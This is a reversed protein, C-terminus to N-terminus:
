KSHKENLANIRIKLAPNHSLPPTHDDEKRGDKTNNCHQESLSVNAPPSSEFTYPSASRLEKTSNSPNSANAIHTKKITVGSEYFNTIATVLLYKRAVALPM